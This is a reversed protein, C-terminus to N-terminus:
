PRLPLLKPRLYQLQIAELALVAFLSAPVSLGPNHMVNLMQPIPRFQRQAYKVLFIPLPLQHAKAFPAVFQFM